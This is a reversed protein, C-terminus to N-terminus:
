TLWQQEGTRAKRSQQADFDAKTSGCSGFSCGHEHCATRNCVMRYGSGGCMSCNRGSHRPCRYVEGPNGHRQHDLMGTGADPVVSNLYESLHDHNVRM